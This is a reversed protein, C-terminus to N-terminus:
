PMIYIEYNPVLSAVHGGSSLLFAILFFFFFTQPQAVYTGGPLVVSRPCSMLSLLM